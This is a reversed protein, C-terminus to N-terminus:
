FSHDIYFCNRSMVVRMNSNVYQSYEKEQEIIEVLEDENVLSNIKNSSAEEDNIQLWVPYEREDSFM